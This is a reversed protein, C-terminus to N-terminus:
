KNKRLEKLIKEIDYKPAYKQAIDVIKQITAEDEELMDAIEEITYGKTLRKCVIEVLGQEIGQQIGLELINMKVEEWEELERVETVIKDLEVIREDQVQIESNDLTTNKMHLFRLNRGTNTTRRIHM